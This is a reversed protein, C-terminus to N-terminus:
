LGPTAVRVVHEVVGLATQGPEHALRGRFDATERRQACEVLHCRDRRYRGLVLGRLHQRGRACLLLGLLRRQDEAAPALPEIRFQEFQEDLLRAILDAVDAAVKRGPFAVIGIAIRQGAQAARKMGQLAAAAHYPGIPDTFEAPVDLPHQVPQDVARQLSTRAEHLRQPLRNRRQRRQQLFELCAGRGPPVQRRQDGLQPLTGLRGKGLRDLRMLLRCRRRRRYRLWHGFRRLWRSRWRGRWRRGGCRGRHVRYQEVNEGTLDAAMEGYQTAENRGAPLGAQGVRHGLIQVAGAVRQVAAHGHCPNLDPQWQGLREIPQDAEGVVTRGAQRRTRDIRQAVARRSDFGQQSVERLGPSRNRDSAIELLAQRIM